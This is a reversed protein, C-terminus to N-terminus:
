GSRARLKRYITARSIGLAHAAAVVNGKAETVARRILATEMDRLPVAHLARQTPGGSARQAHVQLRLGSWLPWETPGQGRTAQDFLACTDLAFLEHVAPLPWQGSLDLMLAASRNWGVLGGSEDVCVLGDDDEGLVRGPWNLRLLLAHPCALTLANEISRVAQSVLHKLAPQEPVNVGTLDLMGLREGQPGCIPAGACSFVQNDEYFHEGRHLWVPEGDTLCSGIATTGVRRESLDVGPRAIAQTAKDQPDILGQVELVLGEADTLMAFYRTHLLARMLSQIVPQSASLLAHSQDRAQALRAASVPDFVVRERPSMGMALCRQWSREIGPAIGVVPLGQEFASYRAQEICELRGPRGANASTPGPNM